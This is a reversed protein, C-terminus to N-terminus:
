HWTYHMKAMKNLKANTIALQMNYKCVFSAFWCFSAHYTMAVLPLNAKIASHLVDGVKGCRKLTWQEDFRKKAIKNGVLNTKAIISTEKLREQV